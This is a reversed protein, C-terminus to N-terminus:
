CLTTPKNHYFRQPMEANKPPKACNKKYMGNNLHLFHIIYMYIVKYHTELWLLILQWIM